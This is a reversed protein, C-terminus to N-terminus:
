GCFDQTVWVRDGRIEVGIGEASWGRRLLNERHGPSNLWSEVVREATSEPETGFGEDRYINEGVARCQVGAARLRDRANQGEPNQHRFYDREAMDESHNSAVSAISHDFTLTSLGRESRVDNVEQHIAQEIAHERDAENSDLYHGVADASGQATDDITPFGTGILGAVFLAGIVLIAIPALTKALGFLSGLLRSLWRNFRRIYRPLSALLDIPLRVILLIVGLTTFATDRLTRVVGRPPAEDDETRAISGDPDVDPSSTEPEYRAASPSEPETKARRKTKLSQSTGSRSRNSSQGRSSSGRATRHATSGYKTDEDLKSTWPASLFNAFRCGHTEPIRHRACFHDDCYSCTFPMDVDRDCSDCTHM